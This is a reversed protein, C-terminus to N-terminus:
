EAHNSTFQLSEQDVNDILRVNGLYVAGYRRHTKEQIYDVRFGRQNLANIAAECTPATALIHHFYAAEEKHQKSLLHNRSSYALGSPERITPCAIIETDLFFANAMGRVLEYQQFDKEGFYARTPRILQLLKMVITLMGDFHGPRFQGEMITALKREIIRYHDNNSYMDSSKPIFIYDVNNEEAIKCDKDLTRPYREYDSADNFQTPNIFISLISIDNERRARELLSIHGLHLNGMTAVFGLSKRKQERIEKIEDISHLVTTM